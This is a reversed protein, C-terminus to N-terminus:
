RIAGLMLSLRVRRPERPARSTVPVGSHRQRAPHLFASRRSVSTGVSCGSAPWFGHTEPEFPWGSHGPSGGPEGVCAGGVDKPRVGHRHLRDFPNAPLLNKGGKRVWGTPRCRARDTDAPHRPVSRNGLNTVGHTPPTPTGHGPVSDAAPQPSRHPQSRRRRAPVQDTCVSSRQFQM